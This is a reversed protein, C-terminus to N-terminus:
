AASLWYCAEFCGQEARDYKIKPWTITKKKTKCYMHYQISTYKLSKLDCKIFISIYEHQPVNSTISM